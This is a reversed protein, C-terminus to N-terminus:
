GGLGWLPYDINTVPTKIGLNGTNLGSNPMGHCDNQFTYGGYPGTAGPVMEAKPPSKALFDGARMFKASGDTFGVTIGGTVAKNTDVEASVTNQYCDLVGRPTKNLKNKWYERFAIPYGVIDQSTPNWTSDDTAAPIVSLTYSVEMIIM